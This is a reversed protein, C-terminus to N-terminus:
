ESLLFVTGWVFLAWVVVLLVAYVNNNDITITTQLLAVAVFLLALGTRQRRTM